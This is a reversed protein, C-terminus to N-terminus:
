STQNWDKIQYWGYLMFLFITSCPYKWVRHMKRVFLFQNKYAHAFNVFPVKRYFDCYFIKAPVNEVQFNKKQYM